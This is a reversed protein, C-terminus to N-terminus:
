IKNQREANKDELLKEIYNRYEPSQISSMKERVLQEPIEATNPIAMGCVNLEPTVVVNENRNRARRNLPCVEQCKECGLLWKDLTEPLDPLKIEPEDAHRNLM